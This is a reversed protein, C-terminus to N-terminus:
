RGSTRFAASLPRRRPSRGMVVKHGLAVVAGALVLGASSRPDDGERVTADAEEERRDRRAVRVATAQAMLRVVPADVGELPAPSSTPPVAEPIAQPGVEGGSPREPTPSEPAQRGPAPSEPMDQDVGKVPEVVDATAREAEGSPTPGSLRSVVSPSAGQGLGIPATSTANSSGLSSGSQAVQGASATTSTSTASQTPLATIATTNNTVSGAM